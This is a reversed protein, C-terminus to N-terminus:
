IVRDVEASKGNHRVFFNCVFYVLWSDRSVRSIQPLRLGLSLARRHSLM